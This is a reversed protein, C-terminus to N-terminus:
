RRIFRDLRENSESPKIRLSRVSPLRGKRRTVKKRRESALQVYKRTLFEFTESRIRDGKAYHVTIISDPSLPGKFEVWGVHALLELSDSLRGQTIQASERSLWPPYFLRCQEFIASYRVNFDDMRTTSSDWTALWIHWASYPVPPDDRLFKIKPVFSRSQRVAEKGTLAGIINRDIINGQEKKLIIPDEVPYQYSVVALKRRYVGLATARKKYADAPCLLIVQPTFRRGEFVHEKAYELVKGIELELNEQTSPLSGKEEIFTCQDGLIFIDPSHEGGEITEIKREVFAKVKKQDFHFKLSAFLIIKSEYSKIERLIKAV